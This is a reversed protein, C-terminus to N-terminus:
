PSTRMLSRRLRKDVAAYLSSVTSRKTLIGPVPASTIDRGSPIILPSIRYIIIVAAANDLMAIGLFDLEGYLCFSRVDCINCSQVTILIM